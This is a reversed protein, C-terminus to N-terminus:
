SLLLHIEPPSSWAHQRSRHSVTHLDFDEVLGRDESITKRHIKNKSSNCLDTLTLPQLPFQTSCSSDSMKQLFCPAMVAFYGVCVSGSLDSCPNFTEEEHHKTCFWCHIFWSRKHVTFLHLTALWFTFALHLVTQNSNTEDLYKTCDPTFVFHLTRVAVRKYYTQLGYVSKRASGM